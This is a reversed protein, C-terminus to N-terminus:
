EVKIEKVPTIEEIEEVIHAKDEEYKDFIKLVMFYSIISLIFAIILNGVVLYLIVSTAPELGQGIETLGVLIGGLAISSIYFFPKVFPNLFLVSAFLALNSVWSFLRILLAFVLFGTGLTPLSTIFVGIAFSAAVQHSTHDERFAKKLEIKIRDRIEGFM